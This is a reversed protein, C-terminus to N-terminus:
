SSGANLIQTKKKKDEGIHLVTSIMYNTYLYQNHTKKEGSTM